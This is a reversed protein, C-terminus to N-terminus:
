MNGRNQMAARKLDNPMGNGQAAMNQMMMNNYQQMRGSPDVGGAANGQMMSTRAKQATRQAGIYRMVEQKGKGRYGQHIEWFQCWWDQLFPGDGLQVPTPLDNPKNKLEDIEMMGDELASSGNVQSQSSSGGQRSSPSKKVESETEVDVKNVFARAIDYLGNRLLYDYIATNLRKIANMGTGDGGGGGSSPTGANMQQQQQQQPTPGGVPGGAMGSMMHQQQQSM